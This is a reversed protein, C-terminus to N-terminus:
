KKYYVLRKSELVKKACYYCKCSSGHKVIFIRSMLNQMGGKSISGRCYKMLVLYLAFEKKQMERDIFDHQDPSWNFEWERHCGIRYKLKKELEFGNEVNGKVSPFYQADCGTREFNISDPDIWYLNDGLKKIKIEHSYISNNGKVKGQELVIVNFIPHLFITSWANIFGEKGIAMQRLTTQINKESYNELCIYDEGPLTKTEVAFIKSSLKLHYLKGGIKIVPIKCFRDDFYPFVRGIDFFNNKLYFKGCYYFFLTGPDFLKPNSEKEQGFHVKWEELQDFQFFQKKTLCLKSLEILKKQYLSNTIIESSYFPDRSRDSFFKEIKSKEDM